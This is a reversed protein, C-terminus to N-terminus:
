KVKKRKRFDEIYALVLDRTAELGKLHTRETGHSASVGPGILGVRFDYGARVAGSGDSGYFPFVDLKFPIRRRRAIDALRQRMAYDYPGTSDKVCISVSSEDGAVEKGVVGMDVVLMEQVDAPLGSTAGHGVEEFVSFLFAVPASDGGKKGLTFLVDLMAASGAKDDLFHSKVFGTGTYAFRPDVSIFDGTQVGLKQTDAQSKVEADLRIFMREMKREISHVERNVHAAPNELLLTGSLLAGSSTHVTVYGGEFMPLVMGWGTIALSGDGNIGRVMAGLTDVHGSVLLEPHPHNAVLLAGKNTKKSKWGAKGALHALHDIVAETYGSPSPIRLLDELLNIIRPKQAM